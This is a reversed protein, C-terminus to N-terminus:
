KVARRTSGSTVTWRVAIPLIIGARTSKKTTATSPTITCFSRRSSRLAMSRTPPASRPVEFSIGGGSPIKIREFTPTLGDMEEAFVSALDIGENYTLETNEKKAIENAM